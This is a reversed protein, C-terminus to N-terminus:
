PPNVTNKPIGISNLGRMFIMTIALNCVAGIIVTSPAGIREALFGALVGGLPLMGFFASSYFSMVRARKDNDVVLQLISNCGAMLTVMSFGCILLGIAALYKNSAVALILLGVGGLAPMPAILRGINIGRQQSALFLAGSFAGFGSVAMLTGYLEPGGNLIDRAFVPLLTIQPSGLLSFICVLTLVLRIPSSNFAYAIGEHMALLLSKSAKKSPEHSCRLLLLSVIVAAYSFGDVLFCLGEGSLAVMLGAIAPGILRSGHFMAANLAIANPLDLRDTVLESLMSQRAPNDFANVLGQFINLAIIQGVTIEGSLTLYALIFSQLMSLAQTILMVRRRDLRDVVVGALPGLLATPLQGSCAVVGLLLESNTMRYVLWSSAVATIWTGILSISQGFFYLRLNRSKLARLATQIRFLM